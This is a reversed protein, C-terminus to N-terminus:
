NSEADGNGERSEGESWETYGDTGKREKEQSKLVSSNGKWLNIRVIVPFLQILNNMRVNSPVRGIEFLIFLSVSQTHVPDNQIVWVVRHWDCADM